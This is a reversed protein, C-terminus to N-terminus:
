SVLNGAAQKRAIIETFKKKLAERDFPKMLYEDAGGEIATRIHDVDSETTCFIVLPSKGNETSRLKRLFDIGNMVPMNWDLLIVDPMKNGCKELGIQGNEAEDVEFGLGLLVRKVIKRVVPSDDVVLSLGHHANPDFNGDKSPNLVTEEEMKRETCLQM